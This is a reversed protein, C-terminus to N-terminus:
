PRPTKCDGRRHRQFSLKTQLAVDAFVHKRAARRVRAWCGKDITRLLSAILFTLTKM